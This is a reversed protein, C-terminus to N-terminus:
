IGKASPRGSAEVNIRRDMNGIAPEFLAFDTGHEFVKKLGRALVVHQHVPNAYVICCHRPKKSVSTLIRDIVEGLVVDDFPNYLYFVTADGPVCFRRADVHVISWEPLQKRARQYYRRINNRAIECLEESVEVGIIKQFPRTSAFLLARGMGCGYDIFTANECNLWKSSFIEHLFLFSSPFYPQAHNRAETSYSLRETPIVAGTQAGFKHEYWFEYASIRVTRALGRKRVSSFFHSFLRIKDTVRM